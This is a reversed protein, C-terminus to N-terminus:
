FTLGDIWGHYFAQKLLRGISYVGTFYCKM